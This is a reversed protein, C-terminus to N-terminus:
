DIWILRSCTCSSSYCNRHLHAKSEHDRAHVRSISPVLRVFSFSSMLMFLAGGAKHHM